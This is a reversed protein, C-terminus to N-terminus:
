YFAGVLRTFGDEGIRAYVDAETLKSVSERVGSSTRGRAPRDISRPNITRRAAAGQTRPQCVNSRWGQRRRSRKRRRRAPPWGLVEGSVVVEVSFVKRHDPGAEGSVRYDPLPHGLAQLRE